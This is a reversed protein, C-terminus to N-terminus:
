RTIGKKRLECIASEVEKSTKNPIHLPARSIPELGPDGLRRFRNLIRQGLSRSIGYHECLHRVTYVGSLWDNIFERKEQM